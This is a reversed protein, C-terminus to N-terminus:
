SLPTTDEKWPILLGRYSLHQGKDGWTEQQSRNEMIYFGDLRGPYERRSSENFGLMCSLQLYNTSATSQGNTSLLPDLTANNPHSPILVFGSDLKTSEDLAYVRKIGTLANLDFNGSWACVPFADDTASESRWFHGCYLIKDFDVSEQEVWVFFRRDYGGFTVRPNAEPLSLTVANTSPNTGFTTGNWGSNPDVLPSLVCLISNTGVPAEDITLKAEFRVTATSPNRVVSFSGDVITGDFTSPWNTPSSGVRTYGLTGVLFSDLEWLTRRTTAYVTQIVFQEAM